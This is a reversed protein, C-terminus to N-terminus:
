EAKRHASTGAQETGTMARVPSERQGRETFRRTGSERQESGTSVVGM